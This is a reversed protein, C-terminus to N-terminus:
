YHNAKTHSGNEKATVLTVELSGQKIDHPIVMRM